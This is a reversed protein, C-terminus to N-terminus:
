LHDVSFGFRKTIRDSLSSVSTTQSADSWMHGSADEVLIYCCFMDDIYSTTTTKTVLAPFFHLRTQVFLGSM